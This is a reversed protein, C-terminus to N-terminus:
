KKFEPHADFFDDNNSLWWKFGLDAKRLNRENSEQIDEDWKKKLDEMTAGAELLGGLFVKPFTDFSRNIEYQDQFYKVPCSPVANVREQEQRLKNLKTMIDDIDDGHHFCMYRGFCGTCIKPMLTGFAESPKGWYYGEKHSYNSFSLGCETCPYKHHIRHSFMIARREWIREDDDDDDKQFTQRNHLEMAALLTREEKYYYQNQRCKAQLVKEDYRLEREVTDYDFLTVGENNWSPPTLSSSESKVVTSPVVASSPVDNPVVAASSPVMAASSPVMAPVEDDDNKRLSTKKRDKPSASSVVGDPTPRKRGGAM